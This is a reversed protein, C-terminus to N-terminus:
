ALREPAFTGEPDFAQQIAESLHTDSRRRGFRRVFSGPARGRIQLSGQAITAAAELEGWAAEDLDGELLGYVIGNGARAIARVPLSELQEIFGAVESSLLSAKFSTPCAGGAAERLKQYLQDADAAIVPQGGSQRVVAACQWSVAEANEEFGIILTLRASLGLTRAMCANLLEIMTPRTEGALTDAIMREADAANRPELVVFARAQPLPRLKFTVTAIPGMTGFSGIFLKHLDYGAVNKVVKGGSKIIGGDPEIMSMGIVVDRATGYALRAPGSDNTALVGGITATAAHPPDLTVRQGSNALLESLDALSIGAEVMITMDEPSYEVVRSLGRMDMEVFPGRPASTWHLKTRAGVPVLEHGGDRVLRVVECASAMNEPRVVAAAVSGDSPEFVQVGSQRRLQEIMVIRDNWEDASLM